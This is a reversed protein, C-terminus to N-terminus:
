RFFMHGGGVIGTNKFESIRIDSVHKIMDLFFFLLMTLLYIVIHSLVSHIVSNSRLSRRIFAVMMEKHHKAKIIQPLVLSASGEAFYIICGEDVYDPSPLTL